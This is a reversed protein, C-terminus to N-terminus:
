DWLGTEDMRGTEVCDQLARIVCISVSNEFGWLVLLEVCSIGNPSVGGQEELIILGLICLDSWQIRLEVNM